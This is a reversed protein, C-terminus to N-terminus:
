HLFSRCMDLFKKETRGTMLWQKLLYEYASDARAGVSFSNGQAQGSVLSFSLAFLGQKEEHRRLFNTIVDVQFKPSPGDCLLRRCSKCAERIRTARYSACPIPVGDSLKGDRVPYSRKGDMRLWRVWQSNSLEACARFRILGYVWTKLNISFPPIGHTTNFIPLLALGLDDARTLFVPEGTMVYASLM